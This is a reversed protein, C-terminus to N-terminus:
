VSRGPHALHFSLILHNFFTNFARRARGVKIEFKQILRVLYTFLEMKALPEGICRRRGFGFPLVNPSPVFKGSIPDM